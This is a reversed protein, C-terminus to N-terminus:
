APESARRETERDLAERLQMLVPAGDTYRPGYGLNFRYDLVPPNQGQTHQLVTELKDSGSPRQPCPTPLWSGRRSRRLSTAMAMLCLRWTHEAVSECDGTSTYATRVTTKLREASRLFDLIGGLENM